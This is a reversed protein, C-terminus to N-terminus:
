PNRSGPEGPLPAREAELVLEHGHQLIALSRLYEAETIEGRAFRGQLQKEPPQRDREVLKLAWVLGVIFLLIILMVAAFEIM